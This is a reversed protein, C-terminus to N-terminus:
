TKRSVAYLPDFLWRLLSQRDLVVEATLLMGPQLSHHQGYAVIEESTLSVRVRFVPEHVQLGPISVDAPGLVTGSVSKVKGALTGFRQYPFAQLQLHVEQGEKIFGIARSPALLEAELKGDAPTLVALTAGGDGAPRDVIAFRRDQRGDARDRVRCSPKGRRQDARQHESRRFGFDAKAAEIEIPISDLRAKGDAIERQIAASQRRLGSLELEIALVASQRQELDRASLTGKAALQEAAAAQKQALKLRRDQFAVQEDAQQREGGFNVIRTRLQGAEAELRAIAAAGRAKLAVTEEALVRQMRRAPM